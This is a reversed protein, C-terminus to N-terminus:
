CDIINMGTSHPMAARYQVECLSLNNKLRRYKHWRYSVRRLLIIYFIFRM